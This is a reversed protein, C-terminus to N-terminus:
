KGEEKGKSSKSAKAAAAAKRAKPSPVRKGQKGKAKKAKKPKSANGAVLLTMMKDKDEVLTFGFPSAMKGGTKTPDMSRKAWTLYSQFTGVDAGLHAKEAQAVLKAKLESRAIPFKSSLVVKQFLAKVGRAKVEKHARPKVAAAATAKEQKGKGKKSKAKGVAM